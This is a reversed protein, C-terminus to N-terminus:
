VVEQVSSTKREQTTADPIPNVAAIQIVPMAITNFSEPNANQAPM